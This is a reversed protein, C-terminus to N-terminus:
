SLSFQLFPIIRNTCILMSPLHYRRMKASKSTREKEFMCRSKKMLMILNYKMKKRFVGRNKKQKSNTCNTIYPKVMLNPNQLISNYLINPIESFLAASM